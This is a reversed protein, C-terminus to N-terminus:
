ELSDLGQSGRGLVGIEQEIVSRATAMIRGSEAIDERVTHDHAISTTRFGSRAVLNDIREDLNDVTTHESWRVLESDVIDVADALAVLSVVRDVLERWVVGLDRLRRQPTVGHTASRKQLAMTVERLECIDTAIEMVEANMDISAAQAALSDGNWAPSNDLRDLVIGLIYLATDYSDVFHLDAAQVQRLQERSSKWSDDGVARGAILRSIGSVAENLLDVVTNSEGRISSPVKAFADDLTSKLGSVVPNDGQKTPKKDATAPELQAPDELEAEQQSELVWAPMDTSSFTRLRYGDKAQGLSPYCEISTPAAVRCLADFVDNRQKANLFIGNRKEDRIGLWSKSFASSSVFSRRKAGLTGMYKRYRRHALASRLDNARLKSEDSIFRSKQLASTPDEQAASHWESASAALKGLEEVDGVRPTTSGKQLRTYLVTRLHPDLYGSSLALAAKDSLQYAASTVPVYSDKLWQEVAHKINSNSMTVAVLRM